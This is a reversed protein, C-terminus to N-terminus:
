AAAEALEKEREVVARIVDNASADSTKLIEPLYRLMNRPKSKAWNSATSIDIGIREAMSSFDGYNAYVFGKLTNKTSSM